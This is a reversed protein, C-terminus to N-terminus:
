VSLDAQPTFSEQLVNRQNDLKWAEYRPIPSLESTVVRIQRSSLAPAEYSTSLDLLDRFFRPHLHDGFRKYFAPYDIVQPSIRAERPAGALRFRIERRGGPPIPPVLDVAFRDWRRSLTLRGEAPRAEKIRLAPNLEFALHSQPSPGANRMEATVTLDVWRDPGLTGEVRWRGPTVDGPTPAPGESAEADFRAKGIAEYYRVRGLALAAVGATLLLLATLALLDARAPRPDPTYRERLRALILLFTRLPHDPRIRWPRVDPRTRRLYRAALGLLSNLLMPVALLVFTALLFANIAGGAITGVAVALASFTLAVPVVHLLWPVAFASPYIVDPGNAAVALGAAVAVPVATLPLLLAQLSLWRRLLYGASSMGTLSVTSWAGEDQERTIADLSLLFAAVATLLPLIEFSEAAYTSSGIVSLSQERRVWTLAAPGSAAAAYLAAIVRFRLSRGQTRLEHATFAALLRM